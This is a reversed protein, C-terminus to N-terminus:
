DVGNAAFRDKAKSSTLFRILILPDRQRTSTLPAVTYIGPRRGRQLEEIARIIARWPSAGDLDGEALLTDAREAARL